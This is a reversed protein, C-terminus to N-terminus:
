HPAPPPAINAALDDYQQALRFLSRRLRDDTETAALHRFKEAEARYQRARMPASNVRIFALLDAGFADGTMVPVTRIGWGIM